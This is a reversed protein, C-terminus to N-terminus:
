PNPETKPPMLVDVEAPAIEIVVLGPPLAVNVRQRQDAAADAHTLDVTVRVEKEQLANLVDSRGGVIVQVIKPNVKFDRVDGAASVLRVPLSGFTRTNMGSLPRWDVSRETRSTQVTLWIVVALALSFLKWAFDKTVIERM